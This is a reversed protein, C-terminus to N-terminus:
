SNDIRRIFKCGIKKRMDLVQNRIIKIQVDNSCIYLSNFQKQRIFFLLTKYHIEFIKFTTIM